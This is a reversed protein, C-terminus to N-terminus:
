KGRLSIKEWFGFVYAEKLLCEIFEQKGKTYSRRDDPFQLALKKKCADYQMAKEPHCNLYDRFNIYNNWETGNWKVAHIHHTRTDKEFDGMVFLMQGAVDEGRFVFNHEELQKMYPSIGNLDRLGIVIDIIPKAYISAIATSGVHQADVAAYGLIQKLKLIVNEANKNWEEQHPLLKVSGRKLGTM